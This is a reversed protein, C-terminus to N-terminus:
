AQRIERLFAEVEEERTAWSTAIRMIVHRPDPREWFSLAALACLRKEQEEDLLVFIQNTAGPFVIAYGADALGERIRDALRDAREGLREYLGDTFLEDFQVGLVKGKALLAGKLKMYTFFHGALGPDPFVAAEGMLAGCKTGGIYFADCCAALEPLGADCGRAGLGYALRAGDAYLRAGHRHATESLERLESASYLTGYETPQTIYVLGPRVMHDRNGDTEFALFADEVQRASLKGDTGELELVKHGAHEIAGAEHVSVHGSRAAIVGEWPKLLLSIIVLNAQTGGTLFHVAARPARCAARIKDRARDSYVDEGYCGTKEMNTEALRALIRPHASEMYDCSFNFPM